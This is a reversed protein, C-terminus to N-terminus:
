SDKAELLQYYPEFDTKLFAKGMKQYERKSAHMIHRMGIECTEGAALFATAMAINKINGGALKLKKSLFDWDIGDAQPVKEPFIGAWILRRQVEDPFPFEIVFQMRRLFSDDINKSLNTALIVVGEYEELRQLLYGIEINAYRDHADKVESRKGFLADAEDFFLIANSTEAEKFIKSLNKETEGIYKSVVNSLDIKYIDLGAEKSIIEAAMTKGTGSPGSFLANTGKGISLKKDFGWDTYVIERYKIFGSIEKLQDKTDKPLVINDWTYRPEIKRALASLNRNSQAKCGPYLDDMSLKSGAPKKIMAINKSTIIADNIQGGSFRFKSALASIDVDDSINSKLLSAWLSKRLEYSPVPFAMNIFGHNQLIGSPEWPYEGSMFVLNPFSDLAQFIQIVSASVEKEKWLADIGEFYVSSNQLQAERLIMDLIFLSEDKILAKSDIVLMPIRLESCAAQAAMKKGTGYPGHFFFILPINNGPYRKVLEMLEKKKNDELILENFTRKPYILKSFNRILPDILDSGLLFFIMREDVKIPRSLLPIQAEEGSLYILHNKILPSFPSCIERARFGEELSSCLLKIVLDVTPRKKTIDDQLYSYLKEYRMDLEPAICILLTDIEIPKLKFLQSMIHLRLEIGQSASQAKKENIEKGLTEIKLLQQTWLDDTNFKYPSKKLITDVEEESIYLGQFGDVSAGQEARRKELNLNVMLDIRRLEEMLHELSNKYITM